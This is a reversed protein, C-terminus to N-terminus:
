ELIVGKTWDQYPEMSMMRTVRSIGVRIIVCTALLCGFQRIDTWTYVPMKFYGTVDFIRCPGDTIRKRFGFEEWWIM